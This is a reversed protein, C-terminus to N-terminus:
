KKILADVKSTPVTGGTTPAVATGTPTTVSPPPPIEMLAVGDDKERKKLAELKTAASTSKALAIEIEAELRRQEKKLSDVAPRRRLIDIEDEDLTRAEGNADIDNFDKTKSLLEQTVSTLEGQLAKLKASEVDALGGAELVEATLKLRDLATKAYRQYRLKYLTLERDKANESATFQRTVNREVMRSIAELGEKNKAVVPVGNIMFEREKEALYQVPQTGKQTTISALTIEGNPAIMALQGNPMTIRQMDRAVGAKLGTDFGVQRNIENVDENTMIGGGAMWQLYRPAQQVRKMISESLDNRLKLEGAVSERQLKEQEYASKVGQQAQEYEALAKPFRFMQDQLQDDFDPNFASGIGGALAGGIIGGPGFALGRLAGLGLGKFFDKWNREKDKPRNRLYELKARKEMEASNALGTADNEAIAKERVKTAKNLDYQYKFNRDKLATQLDTIPQGQLDIVKGTDDMVVEKKDYTMVGNKTLDVDFGFKDRVPSGTPLAALDKRAQAVVEPKAKPDNITQILLNRKNELQPDPVYGERQYVDKGGIKGIPSVTVTREPTGTAANAPVQYSTPLPKYEKPATTTGLPMINPQIVREDKKPSQPTGAIPPQYEPGGAMSADIPPPAPPAKPTPPPAANIAATTVTPPVQGANNITQTTVTPAPQGATNITQTTTPSVAGSVTQLSNLMAQTAPGVKQEQQKTPEPPPILGQIPKQTAEPQRTQIDVPAPPTQKEITANPLAPPTQKSELGSPVQSEPTLEPVKTEVPQPRQKRPRRTGGKQKKQWPALEFPDQEQQPDVAM